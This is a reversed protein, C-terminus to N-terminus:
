YLRKGTKLDKIHIVNVPCGSAATENCGLIELDTKLCKSKGDSAMEWNEPCVAACAGCSICGERDHEIKFKAM